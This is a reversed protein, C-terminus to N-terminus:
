STERIRSRYIFLVKPCDTSRGLDRAFPDCTRLTTPTGRHRRDLKGRWGSSDQNAGPLANRDCRLLGPISCCAGRGCHPPWLAARLRRASQIAGLARSRTPTTRSSETTGVRIFRDGQLPGISTAPDIEFIVVPKGPTSLEHLPVLPPTLLTTVLEEGPQRIKRQPPTTGVVRTTVPHGMSHLRSGAMFRATNALPRFTNAM